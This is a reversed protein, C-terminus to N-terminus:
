SGRMRVASFKWSNAAKVASSFGGAAEAERAPAEAFKPLPSSDGVCWKLYPDTERSKFELARLQPTSVDRWCGHCKGAIDRKYWEWSWLGSSLICLCEFESQLVFASTQATLFLSARYLSCLSQKGLLVLATSFTSKNVSLERAPKEKLRLKRELWHLITGVTQLLCEKCSYM